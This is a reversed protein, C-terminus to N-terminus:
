EQGLRLPDLGLLRQLAEIEGIRGQRDGVEERRLRVALLADVVEPRAGPNPEAIGFAPGAVEATGLFGEAGRGLTHLLPASVRVLLRVNKRHGSGQEGIQALEFLRHVEQLISRSQGAGDAIVWEFAAKSDLLCAGDTPDIWGTAQLERLAAQPEQPTRLAFVPMRLETADVDHREAGVLGPPGLLGAGSQLAVPEQVFGKGIGGGLPAEEQQIAQDAPVLPAQFFRLLPQAPERPVVGPVAHIEVQGQGSQLPGLGQNEQAAESFRGLDQLLDLGHDLTPTDGHVDEAGPLDDLVGDASLGDLGGCEALEGHGDAAVPM